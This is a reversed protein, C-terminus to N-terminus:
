VSGEVIESHGHARPGRAVKGAEVDAPPNALLEAVQEVAGDPLRKDFITEAFRATVTLLGTGAPIFIVLIALPVIVGIGLRDDRLAACLCSDRLALNTFLLDDLARNVDEDVFTRADQFFAIRQARHIDVHDIDSAVSKRSVAATGHPVGVRHSQCVDILTDALEFRLM